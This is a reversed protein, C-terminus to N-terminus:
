PTGSADSLIMQDGILADGLLQRRQGSLSRSTVWGPRDLRDLDAHASASATAALMLNEAALWCDASAFERIPAACNAVRTGADYFLQLRSGHANRRLTLRSTRRPASASLTRRRESSL